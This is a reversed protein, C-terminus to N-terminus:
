DFQIWLKMKRIITKGRSLMDNFTRRSKFSKGFKVRILFEYNLNMFRKWVCGHCMLIKCLTGTPSLQMATQQPTTPGSSAGGGGGTASAGSMPQRPPEMSWPASPLTAFESGINSGILMILERACESVCVRVWVCVAFRVRVPAFNNPFNWNLFCDVIYVKKM